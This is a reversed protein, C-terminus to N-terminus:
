TIVSHGEFAQEEEPLTGMNPQDDREEEDDIHLTKRLSDLEHEPLEDLKRILKQKFNHSRATLDGSTM